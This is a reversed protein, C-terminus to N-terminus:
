PELLDAVGAPTALFSCLRDTHAGGGVMALEEISLQVIEPLLGGTASKAQDNNDSRETVQTMWIAFRAVM